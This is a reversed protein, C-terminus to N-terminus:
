VNLPYIFSLPCVRRGVLVPRVRTPLGVGETLLVMTLLLVDAVPQPPVDEVGEPSVNDVVLPGHGRELLSPRLSPGSETM